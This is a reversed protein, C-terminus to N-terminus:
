SSFCMVFRVDTASREGKWKNVREIFENYDRTLFNRHVDKEEPQDRKVCFRDYSEPHIFDRFTDSAGEKLIIRNGPDKVVEGCYPDLSVYPNFQIKSDWYKTNLKPDMEWLTALYLYDTERDDFREITQKCFGDGNRVLRALPTCDWSNRVGALCAFICYQRCHYLEVAKEDVPNWDGKEDKVEMVMCIDTGM